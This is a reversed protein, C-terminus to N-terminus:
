GGITMRGEGNPLPSTRLPLAAGPVGAVQVVVVERENDYLVWWRSSRELQGGRRCGGGM